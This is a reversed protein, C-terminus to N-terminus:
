ERLDYSLGYCGWVRSRIKIYNKSTKSFQNKKYFNLLYPKDYEVDLLVRKSNSSRALKKCEDLTRSGINNERYKDNVYLNGIYYDDCELTSALIRGLIFNEVIRYLNTLETSNYARYTSRLSVDSAKFSLVVGLLEGQDNSMITMCQKNYPNVHDSNILIKLAEISRDKNKFLKNFLFMDTSYIWSSILTVDDYEELKRFILDNM